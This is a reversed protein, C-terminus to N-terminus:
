EKGKGHILAEPHRQLYDILHKISEATDGWQDMLILTEKKFPQSEQNITSMLVKTENLTENMSTLLNRLEGSDAIQSVAATTKKMDAAISEFPITNIRKSVSEFSDIIKKLDGSRAIASMAKTTERLDRVIDKFPLESLQKSISDLSGPITPIEQINKSKARMVVKTDPRYVLAIKLKGTVLSQTKLQARLGNKIHLKMANKDELAVCDLCNIETFSTKDIEITVPVSISDDKHDYIISIDTVKGIHVGKIDVPAGVDLGSLDGDFYLVYNKSDKFLEGASLIIAGTVAIVIALLVFLGILTNNAKKSM